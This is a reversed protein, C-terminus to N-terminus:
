GLVEQLLHLLQRGSQVQQPKFADCLKKLSWRKLWNPGWKDTGNQDLRQMSHQDAKTEIATCQIVLASGSTDVCFRVGSIFLARRRQISSPPGKAMECLCSVRCIASTHVDTFWWLGDYVWVISCVFLSPMPEKKNGDCTLVELFAKLDLARRWQTPPTSLVQIEWSSWYVYGDNDNCINSWGFPELAFGWRLIRPACFRNSEAIPNLSINLFQESRSVTRTQCLGFWTRLSCFSSYSLCSSSVLVGYFEQYADQLFMTTVKCIGLCFCNLLEAWSTQLSERWLQTFVKLRWNFAATSSEVKRQLGICYLSIHIYWTHIHHIDKSKWNWKYTALILM